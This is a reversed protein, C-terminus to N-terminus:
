STCVHDLEWATSLIGRGTPFSHKTMIGVPNLSLVLMKYIWKGYPFLFAHVGSKNIGGGFM